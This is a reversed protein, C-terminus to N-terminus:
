IGIYYHLLSLKIYIPVLIEPLCPYLTICFLRPPNAHPSNHPSPLMPLTLSVLSNIETIENPHISQVSAESGTWGSPRCPRIWDMWDLGTWGLEMSDLPHIPQVSAESGTLGSRRRPKIWEMWIWDMWDLRWLTWGLSIVSKNVGVLQM